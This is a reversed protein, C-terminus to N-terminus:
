SGHVTGRSTGLKRSNEGPVKGVTGGCTAGTIILGCYEELRRRRVLPM